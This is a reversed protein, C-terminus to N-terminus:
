YFLSFLFISSYLVSSYCGGSEDWSELMKKKEFPLVFIELSGSYMLIGVFSTEM